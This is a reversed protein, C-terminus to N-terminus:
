GNSSSGSGEIQDGDLLYNHLAFCVIVIKVQRSREYM